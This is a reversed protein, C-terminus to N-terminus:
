MRVEIYPQSAEGTGSGWISVLTKDDKKSSLIDIHEMMEAREAQKTPRITTPLNGVVRDISVKKFRQWERGRAKLLM